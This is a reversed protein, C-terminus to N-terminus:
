IGSALSQTCVSSASGAAKSLKFEVSEFLWFALRTWTWTLEAQSLILVGKAGIQLWLNCNCYFISLNFKVTSFVSGVSPTVWPCIEFQTAWCTQWRASFGAARHSLTLQLHRQPNLLRLCFCLLRHAFVGSIAVAALCADKVLQPSPFFLFFFRMAVGTASARTQQVAPSAPVRACELM